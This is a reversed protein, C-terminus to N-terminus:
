FRKIRGEKKSLIILFPPNDILFSTKKAKGISKDKLSTFACHIVFASQKLFSLPERHMFPLHPHLESWSQEEPLHLKSGLPLVHEEGEEKCFVSSEDEFVGSAGRLEEERASYPILHVFLKEIPKIQM